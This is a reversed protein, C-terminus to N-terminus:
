VPRPLVLHPLAHFPTSPRPLAHFSTSPRPLVPRPLLLGGKMLTQSRKTRNSVKLLLRYTTKHNAWIILRAAHAAELSLRTAYIFFKSYIFNQAFCGQQDWYQWAIPYSSFYALHSAATGVVQYIGKIEEKNKPPLLSCKLPDKVKIMTTTM